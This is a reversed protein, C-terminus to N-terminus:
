VLPVLFRLTSGSERCDFFVPDNGSLSHGHLQEKRAAMVAHVCGKTTFIDDSLGEEGLDALSLDGALSACILARHLLSKSLPVRVRGELDGPKVLISQMPKKRRDPHPKASKKLCFMIHNAPCSKRTQFCQRIFTKLILIPLCPSTGAPFCPVSETQRAPLHSVQMRESLPLM